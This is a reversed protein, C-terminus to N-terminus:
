LGKSHDSSSAEIRNKHSAMSPETIASRRPSCIRMVARTLLAPGCRRASSSSTPMAAQRANRAMTAQGAHSYAISSFAMVVGASSIDLKQRAAAKGTPIASIPTKETNRKNREALRKCDSCATSRTEAM